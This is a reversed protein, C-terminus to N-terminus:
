NELGVGTKYKGFNIWAFAGFYKSAADDYVLAAETDKHYIGLYIAKGNVRISAQWQRSGKGKRKHFTVGKYKSAKQDGRSKRNRINDAFTAFRLNCRRNDLGNQNIHDTVFGEKKGLIEIHMLITKTKGNVREGRLAYYTTADKGKRACWKHLSIKPYDEGDVIAYLGQTLPISCINKRVEATM